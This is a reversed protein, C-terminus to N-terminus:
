IHRTPEMRQHLIRIVDVGSDTVVYFVVHSGAPYRRYGGRVDDCARGRDPDAALREVAARIDEIYAEAQRVGWQEETYDWIRSLDRQAAPTLRYLNM